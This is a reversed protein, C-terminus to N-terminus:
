RGGLGFKDVGKWAAMRGGAGEVVGLEEAGM